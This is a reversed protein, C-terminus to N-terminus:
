VAAPFDFGWFRPHDGVLEVGLKRLGNEDEGGCWIVRALVAAGTVDHVLEVVQQEDAAHASLILGGYRNVVIAQGPRANGGIRVHLPVSVVVRESRRRAGDAADEVM